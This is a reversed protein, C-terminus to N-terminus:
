DFVYNVSLINATTNVQVTNGDGYLDDAEVFDWFLVHTVEVNCGLTWRIVYDQPICEKFLKFAEQYKTQDM